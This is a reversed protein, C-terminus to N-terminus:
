WSCPRLFAFSGSAEDLEETAENTNTSGNPTSARDNADGFREHKIVEGARGLRICRADNFDDSESWWDNYSQHINRARTCSGDQTLSTFRSASRRRREEEFSIALVNDEDLPRSDFDSKFSACLYLPVPFCFDHFSDILITGAVSNLRPAPVM